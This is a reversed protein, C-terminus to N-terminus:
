DTPIFGIRRASITANAVSATARVMSRIYYKNGPVLIASGVHSFYAMQQFSGSETYAADSDGAAIQVTGTADNDRIQYGVYVGEGATIHKMRGGVMIMGRGSPPWRITVGVDTGGNTFANTITANTTDSIFRTGYLESDFETTGWRYLLTSVRVVVLIWDDPIDYAATTGVIRFNADLSTGSTGWPPIYYLADGVALNIVAGAVTQNSAGGVGTIVSGNAPFTINITGTTLYNPGRVGWATLTGVWTATGADTVARQGIGGLTGQLRTSSMAAVPGLVDDIFRDGRVGAIRVTQGVAVPQISGMAVKVAGSDGPFTVTCFRNTRDITTVTAYRPKPREQGLQRSVLREIIDRM